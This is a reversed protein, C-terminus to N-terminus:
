SSTKQGDPIVTSMLKICGQAIEHETLFSLSLKNWTMDLVDQLTELTVGRAMAEIKKDDEEKAIESIVRIGGMGKNMVFINASQAAAIMKFHLQQMLAPFTYSSSYQGIPRGWTPHVEAM